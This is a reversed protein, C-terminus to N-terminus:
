ALSVARLYAPKSFAPFIGFPATSAFSLKETELVPLTPTPGSKKISFIPRPKLL